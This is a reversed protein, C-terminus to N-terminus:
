AKLRKLVAASTLERLAHGLPRDRFGPQTGTEKGTNQHRADSRWLGQGLSACRAMGDLTAKTSHCQLWKLASEVEGKISSMTAPAISKGAPKTTMENAAAANM